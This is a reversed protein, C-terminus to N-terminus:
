CLNGHSKGAVGSMLSEGSALGAKNAPMRKSSRENIPVAPPQGEDSKVRLDCLLASPAPFIKQGEALPLIPPPPASRITM